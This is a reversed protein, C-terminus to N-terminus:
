RGKSEAASANAVKAESQALMFRRALLLGNESVVQEGLALGESVVAEREGQVSLKVERAEFLGPKPSVYVWQKEGTLIVSAAPVMVGAGLKRMVHATALMESKLLREPNAIVGRLKITRSVPDIADALASIRGEFRRGPWAPLELAFSVGPRLAAVEDERADIQVWLSAPDTIVFLPPGSQDTRLEQGPNINREVVVGAMGARLSIQQNVSGGPAGAYLRVRGQARALEADMRAADGEAQEFDRQAIVGAAFLERQRLMQKASQIQDALARAADAQAQGFDPSALLALTAGAGVGQGLDADIREVRGSFAPFIRQTRSENWVLKATLHMDMSQAAVAATLKLLQLQPHGAPFQLQRGQLIPQAAEPPESLSSKCAPLTAAVLICLLSLYQKMALRKSLITFSM